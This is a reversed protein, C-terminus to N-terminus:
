QEQKDLFNQVKDRNTIGLTVTLCARVFCVNEVTGPKGWLQVYQASEVHRSIHVDLFVSNDLNM